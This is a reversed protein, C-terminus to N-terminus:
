AGPVILFAPGRGLDRVHVADHGAKALVECVRHSLNNDLLFRM